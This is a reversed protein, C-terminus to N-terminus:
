IIKRFHIGLESDSTIFIALHSQLSATNSNYKQPHRGKRIRLLDSSKQKYPNQM